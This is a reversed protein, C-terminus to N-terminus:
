AKKGKAVDLAFMDLPTTWDGNVGRIDVFRSRAEELANLVYGPPRASSKIILQPKSLGPAWTDLEGIIHDGRPRGASYMESMRAGLAVRTEPRPLRRETCWQLYSRELLETTCFDSWEGFEDVGHRSRWVFGRELVTLWWRDLSDLSRRHQDALAATKPVDRPDFNSIDRRLLDYIMAALGGQEMQTYLANFYPRDGIRNDLVDLVFYRREDHTAPVVWDSNSSMYVHLMNPVFVVDMGKGEIPLDRETILGKLVSEHQRDGAFFAEDAFLMVCDRLHNNFNGVLHKSNYIHAGHQGWAIKLHVCLVGKGSGKKGRLVVAVEAPRSPMQFMRAHTNLLYEYHEDNGRCIIKHAHDRMLGWDGPRPEVGFGSWLNWYDPGVKNTPDFVIGKLYQRRRPHYLWVDGVSTLRLTGDAATVEIPQNQYFKRFDEFRSRTIVFRGIMPDRVREYVMAKGTENVVAYQANLANILDIHRPADSRLEKLKRDLTRKSVGSIKSVLNRLIEVQDLSLDALRVLRLFNDVADEASTKELEAKVAAFDVKLEYVTRGHAFSNIWLSGDARRMIRAKCPGYEVGELPDALTEGVFLDPNALVDAVTKGALEPDDFPLELLPLLVGKYQREIIQRARRPEIGTREVLQRSRRAIYADRAKALEEGLPHAAKARLEDLKTVEAITLPPCSAVSDLAPGEYAVPRRAGPDQTVPEILVPPGEFCFREPTGCVKDVISRDLLQGADGIFYWGFGALWCRDHLTKLFRASDSGDKILVFIHQGGSYPFPEGTRANYLGASTSAREVRAVGELEPVIALLAPWIGGAATLKSAVSATMGKKDFDVLVLAPEALRHVIYEQSRAITARPTAGNLKNLKPKKVVRVQDPLDPRLTGLALAQNTALGLILDAHEQMSGLKVRQAAGESMRCADGNSKVSGDPALSIEKSLPGGSKTFVTIEFQPTDVDPGPGPERPPPAPQGNLDRLERAIENRDCPCFKAFRVRGTDPNDELRLTVRGCLPCRCRWGAGDRGPEGLSAAFEAATM